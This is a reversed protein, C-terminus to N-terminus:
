AKIKTTRSKPLGDRVRCVNGSKLLKKFDTDYKLNITYHRNVIIAHESNERLFALIANRRKAGYPMDYLAQSISSKEEKM